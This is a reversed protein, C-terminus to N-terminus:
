NGFWKINYSLSFTNFPIQFRKSPLSSSFALSNVWNGGIAAEKWYKSLLIVVISVIVRLIVITHAAQEKSHLLIM